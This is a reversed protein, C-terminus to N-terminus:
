VASARNWESKLLSYQELDHHAGCWYGIERLVGERKFGFKALLANAAANRAYVQAGIRNLAMTQFGWETIAALAESMLGRRAHTSSIEFGILCCKWPRNWAFLGCTGIIGQQGRLDLAWRTGSHAPLTLWSEFIEVLQKTENAAVPLDTGCWKMHEADSHIALLADFDSAALQRLVLRSTELVPFDRM